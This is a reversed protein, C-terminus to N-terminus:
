KKTDKNEETASSPISIEVHTGSGDANADRVDILIHTNFLGNILKLRSETNHMGISKNKLQNTTKIEQSKKRGIGDDEINISLGNQVMKINVSLKGKTERYRLGHWVANEIYPQLLMPPVYFQERDITEDVTFEYDFKDSFRAHELGLYLELIEIETSLPIFDKQSNEMVSRMLRSFESLYKNAKREDNGAIYHNVSNLANFIFHPNMQSRLGQLALLESAVKKQRSGRYVLFSAVVVALFGFGMMYILLNQNSMRQEKVEDDKRLLDITKEGLGREKELMDIKLQKRFLEDSVQKEVYETQAKQKQLSDVVNM